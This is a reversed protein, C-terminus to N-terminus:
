AHRAEKFLTNVPAHHGDTVKGRVSRGQAAAHPVALAFLTVVLLLKAFRLSLRHAGDIWDCGGDCRRTGLQTM